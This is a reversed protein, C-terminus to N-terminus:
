SLTYFENLLKKFNRNDQIWALHGSNELIIYNLNPFRVKILEKSKGYIDYSGFLVTVPKNFDMLAEDLAANNLLIINKRTKNIAIANIGLLWNPKAEVADNPNKFYFKWLLKFINRYGKNSGILGRLSNIGIILWEKLSAQNKNYSMVEKEMKKWVKGTGSSPSCLFLSEIRSKNKAAWLQALLGGWSHGFIHVKGINLYNIIQDIDYLYEDVTYSKNLSESKGTGRQDFRVTRYTKSLIDSVEDLYDPVGPGAHLLIITESHNNGEITLNLISTKTELM